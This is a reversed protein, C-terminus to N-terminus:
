KLKEVLVRQGIDGSMEFNGSDGWFVDGANKGVDQNWVHAYAWAENMADALLKVTTEDDCIMGEFSVRSRKLTGEVVNQVVMGLLLASRSQVEDKLYFTVARCLETNEFNKVVKM